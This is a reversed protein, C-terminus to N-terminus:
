KKLTVLITTYLPLAFVHAGREGFFVEEVRVDGTDDATDIFRYEATVGEGSAFGSWDIRVRKTEEECRTGDISAHDRYYTLLIAAEGGDGSVAAAAFVDPDDATCSVENKLQYLRSFYKIAYYPKFPTQSLYDFLGNWGTNIRADYYMLHDLPSHQCALMSGAVFASGKLSPIVRYSYLMDEAPQWNKVYNWENLITETDAYGYEDLLRRAEVAQAAVDQPTKAYRHFSFFDLPVPDYKDRTIYDFFPILFRKNNVSTVAPGGIKLHPFCAKLHRAAIEFLEFFKDEPGDWCQPHLDPENWIEWYEIGYHHGDAWGENMHRIIHECIRAWKHPDKPPLAGYRKSEHEIKNGLRYFVKTGAAMITENYEDTLHFDYSAPDNEDADFDPFIAIIDVTHPAGYSPAFNADHNRAFPIAADRFYKANSNGRIGAPGNNVSHMPKITGTVNSFDASVHITDM